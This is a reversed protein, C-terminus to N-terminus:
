IKNSFTFVYYDPSTKDPEVSKKFELQALLKTSKQNNKHTFANITQVKITQVAYEMVKSAAEKMM